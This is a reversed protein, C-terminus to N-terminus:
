NGVISISMDAAESLRLLLEIIAREGDHQGSKAMASGSSRLSRLALRCHDHTVLTSGYLDVDPLRAGSAVLMHWAREVSAEPVILSATHSGRHFLQFEIPASEGAIVTRSPLAEKM